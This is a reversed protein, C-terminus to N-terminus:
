DDEPPARLADGLRKLIETILRESDEVTLQGAFGIGADLAIRAVKEWLETSLDRYIDESDFGKIALDVVDRSSGNVAGRLTLAYTTEAEDRETRTMRLM